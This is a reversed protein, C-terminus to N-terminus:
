GPLTAYHDDRGGWSCSDRARIGGPHLTQPKYVNCHQLWFKIHMTVTHRQSFIFALFINKFGDIYMYVNFLKTLSIRQVYTLSRDNAHRAKNGSRFVLHVTGIGFRWTGFSLIYFFMCVSFTSNMQNRRVAGRLSLSGMMPTQHYGLLLLLISPLTLDLRTFNPWILNPWTLNTLLGTYIPSTQMHIYTKLDIYVKSKLMKVNPSELRSFLVHRRFNLNKWPLAM